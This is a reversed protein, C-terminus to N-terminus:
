EGLLEKAKQAPILAKQTLATKNTKLHEIFDEKQDWTKQLEEILDKAKLNNINLKNKQDLTEMFRDIKPDYSISVFPKEVVAGMILAHLRMGLILDCAKYICLTEYPTYNEKLLTAEEKMLNLVKRSAVIDDPFHMPIFVIQFDKKAFYDCTKAIEEMSKIGDKWERVSIGLVKGKINVNSSTLFNTGIERDITKEEIGLVPDVTTIIEKKVKFSELDKQSKEDRVTIGQVLNLVKSVLIQNRKLDVPGIGQSYILVKKRLIKAIGIVGLYYLIGNKSTVDQLLSGGGSILLDSKKLIKFVEKMKWRNIAKVKYLKETQEPNNSLVIVEIDKIKNKLAEIIAYLVAEDGANNFGYYGSLVIRKM